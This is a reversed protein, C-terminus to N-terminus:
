FSYKFGLYPSVGVDVGDAGGIGDFDSGIYFTFPKFSYQLYLGISLGFDFDSPLNFELEGYIDGTGYMFLATLGAYTDVGDPLFLFHPTVEIGLGFTSAWGFLPDLGMCFEDGPTNLFAIPVGLKLYLDGFDMNQTFKVYPMLPLLVDQDSPAVPIQLEGWLGFALTSAAALQISYAFEFELNVDVRVDDGAKADGVLGMPVRLGAFVYLADFTNEYEVFPKVVLPFEDANNVNPTKLELGVDLGLGGDEAMVSGAALVLVIFFVLLNRKM